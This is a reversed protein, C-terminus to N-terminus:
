CLCWLRIPHCNTPSWILTYQRTTQVRHLNSFLVQDLVEFNFECYQAAEMLDCMDTRLPYGPMVMITQPTVERSSSQLM